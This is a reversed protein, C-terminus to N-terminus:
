RMGIMSSAYASRMEDSEPSPGHVHLIEVICTHDLTHPTPLYDSCLLVANVDVDVGRPAGLLGDDATAAAGAPFISRPCFYTKAGADRCAVSCIKLKPKSM